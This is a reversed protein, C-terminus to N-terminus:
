WLSFTEFVSDTERLSWGPNGFLHVITAQIDTYEGIRMLVAVQDGLDATIQVRWCIPLQM